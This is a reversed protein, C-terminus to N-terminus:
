QVSATMQWYQHNITQFHYYMSRQSSSLNSLMVKGTACRCLWKSLLWQRCETICWYVPQLDTVASLRSYRLWWWWGKDASQLIALSQDLVCCYYGCCRKVSWTERHWGENPDEWGRMSILFGVGLLQGALDILDTKSKTLRMAGRLNTTFYPWWFRAQGTSVQWQCEHRLQPIEQAEDQRPQSSSKKKDDSALM